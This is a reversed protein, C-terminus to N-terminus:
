NNSRGTREMCRRGKRHAGRQKIMSSQSGHRWLRRWDGRCNQSALLLVILHNAGDLKPVTCFGVVISASSSATPLASDMLHVSELNSGVIFHRETQLIMQSCWTYIVFVLLNSM